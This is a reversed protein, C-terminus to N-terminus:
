TVTIKRIASEAQGAPLKPLTVRLVGHELKSNVGTLDLNAPLTMTRAISSEVRERRHWRRAPDDSLERAVRHASVTLLNGGSPAPTIEVTINEKKFGPLNADITYGSESENIDVAMQPMTNAALHRMVSDMQNALVAQMAEVQPTMLGMSSFPAFPTMADFGAFPTLGFRDASSAFPAALASTGWPAFPAASKVISSATTM